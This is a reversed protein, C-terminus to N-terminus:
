SSFFEDPQGDSDWTQLVQRFRSIVAHRDSRGTDFEDILPTLIGAVVLTTTTMQLLFDHGPLSELRLAHKLMVAGEGTHLLVSGFGRARQPGIQLTLNIDNFLVLAEQRKEERIKQPLLICVAVVKNDLIEFIASHGEPLQAFFGPVEGPEQFGIECDELFDRVAARVGDHDYERASLMM